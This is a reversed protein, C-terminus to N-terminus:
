FRKWHGKYIDETWSVNRLTKRCLWIAHRYWRFSQNGMDYTTGIPHHFIDTNAKNKFLSPHSKLRQILSNNLSDSLRISIGQFTIQFEEIEIESIILHFRIIPGPRFWEFIYYNIRVVFCIVICSSIYTLIIRRTYRYRYQISSFSVFRFTFNM